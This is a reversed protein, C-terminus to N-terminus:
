QCEERLIEIVRDMDQPIESTFVVRKRRTPHNFALYVAHLAQRDIVKMIKKFILYGREDKVVRASRGGYDPDGVVPHGLHELHTRIQHTRGTRLSVELRTAVGFRDVVKLVTRAEKSGIPTVAMKMRNITDRGIPADIEFTDTPVRGWVIACYRRELQRREVMIGLRSLAEDTKAFLILGTTDKDLRHVVGPRLKSSGSPLGGCHYLLGNVLTQDRHGRSPHVVVGKDKDIIVIDRDEYVIKLPLPQPRVEMPTKVEYHAEIVDGERIKHSPQIIRGNLRVHGERILRQLNSRTIGIGSKILYHDLRVGDMKKSVVRKFDRFPM